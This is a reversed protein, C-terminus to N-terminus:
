LFFQKELAIEAKTILNEASLVKMNGLEKGFSLNRSRRGLQFCKCVVIYIYSFVFTRRPILLFCQPFLHFNQNGANEGKGAIYKIPKKKLTM